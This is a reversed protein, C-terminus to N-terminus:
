RKAERLHPKSAAPSITRKLMRDALLALLMQEPTTGLAPESGELLEVLLGELRGAASEDYSVLEATETGDPSTVTVRRTVFGTRMAPLDQYHLVELRRFWRARDVLLVEFKEVDHDSWNSPPREAISLALAELWDMDDLGEDSATMLFGRMRPDIVQRVLHRARARLDERLDAEAPVAFADRLLTRIDDLLRDYAGGLEALASRLAKAYASAAVTDASNEDLFPAVDCAKPLEVFILADPERTNLLAECVARARESRRETTRSYAPLGQVFAILPRVIALTTENRTARRSEASVVIAKLQEFVVSRLSSSSARKLEFREPAKLLREILDPGIIPVFSGDQYVFVEDSYHALAAALLVPLPGPKMGFPPAMLREYLESVKLPRVAAEDLFDEIVVWVGSLSSSRHPPNFGFSGDVERHLGNAALVAEYMARDPGYGTIGLREESAHTFMRGLLERRAKAGQSTLERRNLMENPLVPTQPFRQDCLDSLRRSFEARNGARVREGAFFWTVGKRESSFAHEIREALAAQALVIRQRVERRAVADRELEPASDLVNMSALADVTADYIERGYPSWVVVLPRGDTTQSPLETPARSTGLVYMCLGDADASECRPRSADAETSYITEFYRLVEREQSHRRAVAARLPRVAAVRDLLGAEAGNRSKLVERAAAIEASVDFDSGEWLRYEGAFDRFNLLSRTLLDDLATDVAESLEGTPGAVAEKVLERTALLGDRGGILNLVAITRLVDISVPDLDAADGVRAHIERARAGDAGGVTALSGPEIFYDYLDSLRLFPLPREEVSHGALFARLATPADSTLFAALSRDHQGFRSALRPLALAATPHLPYLRGAGGSWGSPMATGPMCASVAREAREAESNIEAAVSKKALMELSEALLRYAHEPQAIFPVDEFRGHVKRWERRRVETAGALYDEFALHQLTLIAGDFAEAGSFREALQQLVFVDGNAAGASAFELGKGLEDAILLVPAYSILEDLLDFLADPVPDRGAEMVDHLDYLVAPKRGPGSWYLDAGTVLARLLARTVSERQVTVPCRLVGRQEIGLRVRERDITESLQPDVEALLTAALVREPARAPAFLASLFHAFSSKGSGYPGTISWARSRAGDQASIVVRRVADVVHSGLSYGDLPEASTLDLELNVSRVNRHRIGILTELSKM